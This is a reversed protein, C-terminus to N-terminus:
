NARVSVNAARPGHEKQTSAPLGAAANKGSAFPTHKETVGLRKNTALSTKRNHEPSARRNAALSETKRTVVSSQACAALSAAGLAVAFLQMVKRVGAGSVLPADHHICNAKVDVHSARACAISSMNYGRGV